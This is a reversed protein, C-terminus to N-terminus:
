SAVPETWDYSCTRCYAHLHEGHEKNHDNYSCNGTCECGPRDCSQAHYAIYIDTAACKTCTRRDVAQGERQGTM